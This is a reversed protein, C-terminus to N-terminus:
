TLTMWALAYELVAYTKLIPNNQAHFSFILYIRYCTYNNWKIERQSEFVKVFHLALTAQVACSILQYLHGNMEQGM